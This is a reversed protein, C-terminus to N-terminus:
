RKQNRLSKLGILGLLLLLWTAPEPVGTQITVSGDAMGLGYLFMGTPLEANSAISFTLGELDERGTTMIPQGTLQTYDLDEGTLSFAIDTANVTVNELTLPKVLNKDASTEFVVTGAEVTGNKFTATIQSSIKTEGTVHIKAGSLDVTTGTVNQIFNTGDKFYYDGSDGFTLSGGNIKFTAGYATEPTNGGTKLIINGSTINFTGNMGTLSEKGAIILDQKGTKSITIEKAAVIKGNMTFPKPDKSQTNVNFNANKLWTITASSSTSSTGSGNVDFFAGDLVINGDFDPVDWVHFKGSKVTVKGVNTLAKSAGGQIGFTGTTSVIEQAKNGEKNFFFEGTGTITLKKGEAQMPSMLELRDGVTITSDATLNISAMKNFTAKGGNAATVLTGGNLTIPNNTVPHTSNDTSHTLTLTGGANVTIPAKESEQKNGDRYLEMKVGNGVTIQGAGAAQTFRVNSGSGALTLAGNGTKTLAAQKADTSGTVKPLTLTGQTVNLALSGGDRLLISGNTLSTQANALSEIKSGSGLSLVASGLAVEPFDGKSFKIVTQGDAFAYTGAKTFSLSGGNVNFGFAYLKAPDANGGTAMQFSNGKVGSHTASDIQITGSFGDMNGSVIMKGVGTKQLTVASTSKLTGKIEFGNTTIGDQNWPTADFVTNKQLVVTANTTLSSMANSGGSVGGGNLTLTKLNVDAQGWFNIRGANVTVEAGNVVAQSNTQLTFVGENITVTKLPSVVHSADAGNFLLEGGGTKTLNMNAGTFKTNEVRFELRQPNNVTLDKQLTVPGYLQMMANLSTSLTGGNFVLANYVKAGAIDVTGGNATITGTNATNTSSIKLTGSNVTAKTTLKGSLLATGGEVSFGNTNSVTGAFETTGAGKVQLNGGTGASSVTSDTVNATFKLTTDKLPTLITTGSGVATEIGIAATTTGTLTSVTGSKFQLPYAPNKGVSIGGDGLNLAGGKLYLTKEASAYQGSENNYSYTLGYLNATGGSEINFFLQGNLGCHAVIYPINLIGGDKVNVTSTYTVNNNTGLTISDATKSNMNVTGSIYLHGQSGRQIVFPGNVTLTSGANVNMTSTMTSGLFLEGGVTVNATSTANSGIYINTHGGVTFDGSFNATMGGNLTVAGSQGSDYNKKNGSADTYTYDTDVQRYNGATINQNITIKAQSGTVRKTADVWLGTTGVSIQTSYTGTGSLLHDFKKTTGEQENVPYDVDNQLTVEASVTQPWLILASVLVLLSALVTKKHFILTNM